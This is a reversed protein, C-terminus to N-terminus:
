STRRYKMNVIAASVSNLEKVVLRHTGDAAAAFSFRESHFDKAGSSSVFMALRDVQKGKPDILVLECDTFSGGALAVRVTGSVTEGIRLDIETGEKGKKAVTFDAEEIRNRDRPAAVKTKPEIEASRVHGRTEGGGEPESEVPRRRKRAPVAQGAHTPGTGTVATKRKWTARYASPRRAAVAEDLHAFPQGQAELSRAQIWDYHTWDLAMFANEMVPDSLEYKHFGIVMIWPLADSARWVPGGSMGAEADADYLTDGPRPVLANGQAQTLKLKRLDLSGRNPYGAVVVREGPQLDTYPAMDCWGTARGVPTRLIIAGLDDQHRLGQRWTPFVRLDEPPVDYWGYPMTGDILGPFISVRYALGNHERSENYLNHGVTFVTREGFFIGTGITDVGSKWETRIACIASYPVKSTDRITIQDNGGIVKEPGQEDSM